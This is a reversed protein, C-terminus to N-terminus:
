GSILITEFAAASQSSDVVAESEAAEGFFRQACHGFRPDGSFLAATRDACDRRQWIEHPLHRLHAETRREGDHRLSPVQQPDQVDIRELVAALSGHHVPGPSQVIHDQDLALEDQNEIVALHGQLLAVDHNLSARIVGPFVAGILNRAHREKVDIGFEAVLVVHDALLAGLLVVAMLLCTVSEIADLKLPM